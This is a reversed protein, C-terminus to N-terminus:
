DRILYSMQGTFTSRLLQHICWSEVIMIKNLRECDEQKASGQLQAILARLQDPSMASLDEPSVKSPDTPVEKKPKPKPKTKTKIQPKAAPTPKRSAKPEVPEGLMQKCFDSKAAGAQQCLGFLANNVLRQAGQKSIGLIAGIESPTRPLKGKTKGAIRPAELGHQEGPQKEGAPVFKMKGEEDRYYGGSEPTKEPPFGAALGGEPDEIGFALNLAKVQQPPLDAKQMLDKLTDLQRVIYDPRRTKTGKLQSGFSPGEPGVPADLSKMTGRRHQIFVKAVDPQQELEEKRELAKQYGPDQRVGKSSDVVSFTEKHPKEDKDLWIVDYGLLGGKSKFAGGSAGAKRVTAQDQREESGKITGATLANRLVASRMAKIAFATFPSKGKDNRLANLVGIAAQQFADQRDVQDTKYRDAIKWMLPRMATIIEEPTWGKELPLFTEKLKTLSKPNEFKSVMYDEPDPFRDANDYLEFEAEGENNWGGHQPGVPVLEGDADFIGYLYNGAYTRKAKRADFAARKKAFYQEIEDDSMTLFKDPRYGAVPQNKLRPPLHQTLAMREPIYLKAEQRAKKLVYPDLEKVLALLDTEGIERAAKALKTWFTKQSSTYAIDYLDEIDINMWDNRSLIEGQEEELLLLLPSLGLAQNLEVLLSM